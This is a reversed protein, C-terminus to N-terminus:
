APESVLANIRGMLGPVDADRNRELLWRVLQMSSEVVALVRPMRRARYADLLDSDLRDRSLLLEALVSADELAMAAGLAVTPPCAHVADGILVARGRHWPGEVLLTEFQTYNIRDGDTMDARIEDWPGHYSEALARMAAVKDAPEQSVDARAGEVLYAYITDPGTPCYGAIYCPGDYVLDTRVVEAPRRAHLRWIGMGVPQPVDDIGLQSRTRSRVGDAGVLLDYHGADGDSFTVSVGTDDDTFSTVTAGLRVKAGAEVAATALVKALHPRDAGLTAPLDPGGTRTDPIEALLRGDVSRMGLANFAAGDARLEDWVGVERLVRLAAGRLTIGAGYTTFDPKREVIEVSVGARGLLVALACGATGGGVILVSRVSTM